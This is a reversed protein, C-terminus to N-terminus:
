NNSSTENEPVNIMIVGAFSTSQQAVIYGGDELLNKVSTYGEGTDMSFAGITRLM